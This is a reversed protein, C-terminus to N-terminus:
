ERIGSGQDLERRLREIVAAERRAWRGIALLGAICCVTMSALLIWPWRVTPGAAQQRYWTWPIFVVLQAALLVWSMTLDRRLRRLRMASLELYVSTSEGIAQFTGRWNWWSFAVAGLCVVALAGMAVRELPDPRIALMVAVVLFAVLGVGVEIAVWLTLLQSRRRVYRTLADDATDPRASQWAATWAQLNDDDTM